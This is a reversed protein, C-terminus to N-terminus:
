LSALYADLPAEGVLLAVVAGLALFPGFPVTTRRGAALGRRRVIEAGVIVGAILAAFLAVAVGRGLFLGLVAVLKVDGLSMGDPRVCWAVLLFAGAVLAAILREPEGAPDLATGLLLALVAAPATLRDPLLRRRLDILALPVLFAVLVLGLVLRTAGHDDAAVAPALLLMSVTLETKDGDDGGASNM